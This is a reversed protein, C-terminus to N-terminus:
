ASYKTLNGLRQSLKPIDLRWRELERFQMGKMKRLSYLFSAKGVLDAAQRDARLRLGKEVKSGLLGVLVVPAFFFVSWLGM